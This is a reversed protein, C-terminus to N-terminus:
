KFVKKHRMEVDPPGPGLPDSHRRPRTPRGAPGGPDRRGRPARTARTAREHPNGFPRFFFPTALSAQGAGGFPRASRASVCVAPGM